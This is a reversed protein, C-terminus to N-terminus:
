SGIARTYFVVDTGCSGGNLNVTWSQGKKITLDRGGGVGNGGAFFTIGETTVSAAGSTGTTVHVVLDTTASYPTDCSYGGTLAGVLGTVYSAGVIPTANWVGTGLTGLGTIGTYSGSLRASALTGSDIWSAPFAAGRVYYDSNNTFQSINASAMQSTTIGSLRALPVTGTGLESANLGTLNGGALSALYTSSLAPIKGNTDVIPVAGSGATIGGASKIADAATSTALFKLKQFVVTQAIGVTPTLAAALIATLTIQITALLFRRITTYTM